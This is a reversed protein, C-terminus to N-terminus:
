LENLNLHWAILFSVTKQTYNKVPMLIQGIILPDAKRKAPCIGIQDFVRLAMAESTASMVEVRAARVPFAVDQLDTSNLHYVTYKNGKEDTKNEQWTHTKPISSAYDGEGEPLIDPPELLATPRGYRSAQNETIANGREVRIAFVDIPFEPIITYGAEVAALVKEYFTRQNIAQNVAKRLGTKNWRNKIAQELSAQYDNIDTEVSALKLRLWEILNERASQMEVPNRAVLHVLPAPTTLGKPETTVLSESM